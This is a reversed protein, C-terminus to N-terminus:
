GGGFLLLPPTTNLNLTTKEHPTEKKITTGGTVLFQRLEEWQEYSLDDYNYQLSHINSIISLVEELFEWRFLVADLNYIKIKRTQLKGKIAGHQTTLLSDKCVMDKKLEGEKFINSIHLTINNRTTQFLDSMQAQSLWVTEDEIIVELKTFDKEPQYFIIENSM